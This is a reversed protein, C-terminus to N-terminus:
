VAQVAGLVSYLTGARIIGNMVVKAPPSSGPHNVHRTFVTRGAVEFVLVSARRPVIVHARTRRATV